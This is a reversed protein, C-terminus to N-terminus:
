AKVIYYINNYLKIECPVQHEVECWKRMGEAQEFSSYSGYNKSPMCTVNICNM